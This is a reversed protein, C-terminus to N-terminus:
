PASCSWWGTWRWGPGFKAALTNGWLPRGAALRGQIIQERRGDAVREAAPQPGPQSEMARHDRM